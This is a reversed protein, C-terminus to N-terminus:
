GLFRTDYQLIKGIITNKSCFYLYYKVFDAFLHMLKAFFM